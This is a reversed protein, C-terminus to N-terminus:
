LNCVWGTICQLLHTKVKASLLPDMCSSPIGIAECHGHPEEHVKCSSRAMSHRLLSCAVMTEPCWQRGLGVKYGLADVVMCCSKLRELLLVNAKDESTGLLEFERQVNMQLSM